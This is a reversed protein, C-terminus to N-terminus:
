EAILKGTNLLQGAAFLQYFYVGAPLNERSIQLTSQQSEQTQVTKGMADVIKLTLVQNEAGVIELTTAIQFPNPYAKVSVNSNLVEGVSVAVRPIFNTGITHFCTNTIIPANYDFYIAAKNNIVTNVALNPKQAIHYTVYGHSLPENAFSDVLQINDFTFKLINNQLLTWTFAHSSTGIQISTPDLVNTDLTDLIVVRFATDTGTNQFEIKYELPTNANIFHQSGYGIQQASKQNPDYSGRNPTCDNSVALAANQTNFINPNSATTNSIGDCNQVIAWTFGGGLFAPFGQAQQVEIRYVSNPQTPITITLGGGAALQFPTNPRYILNNEIIQYNQINTMSAGTNLLRFTVSDVTCTDQIEIIAGNWNVGCLTNPFIRANTCHVQGLTANCSVSVVAQFYGQQSVALNGVPFRYKNNGLNTASINATNSVYSLYSDFEIDVYANASSITGLNKYNIEYIGTMCRRLLNANIEVELIPSTCVVLPRIGINQQVSATTTSINASATCSSYLNAPYPYAEITYQGVPAIFNYFGGVSTYALYVNNQANRIKVLIGSASPSDVGIDYTCNNNYDIYIRGYIQSPLNCNNANNNPSCVPLAPQVTSNSFAHSICSVATNSADVTITINAAAHNSFDPLCALNPNNYCYLSQLTIPIAPLSTLNNDTCNLYQLTAPFAPLSTLNNRNCNLSQLVAAAPFAPLSTLNNENCDLNELAAPLTPLSALNNNQCTLYKLASAAPFAPLSTLDNNECYLYQLTAPLTPLITLNNSICNLQELAAPLSPLSSLQNNDCVLYQLTTPLAPLNALNNNGCALSGLILPLTPLSTLSNHNCTLTELTAPLAPLNTLQNNDCVLTYLTTPLNPLNALNNDRCSLFGLAVPLAPLSTLSNNYCELTRLSAPLVPLSTLNNTNCELNQLATFGQIGQLSSINGNNVQLTILAAAPALLNNNADICTPCLTRIANAFNADPINQASTTNASFILYLLTYFAHKM